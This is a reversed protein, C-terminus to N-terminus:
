YSQVIQPLPSSTDLMGRKGVAADLHPQSLVVDVDKLAILVKDSNGLDDLVGVKIHFGQFIVDHQDLERGRHGEIGSHGSYSQGGVTCRSASLAENRAPTIGQAKATLYKM